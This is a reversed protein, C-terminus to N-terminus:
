QHDVDKLQSHFNGRVRESDKYILIYVNTNSTYM